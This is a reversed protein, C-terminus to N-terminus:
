LEKFILVSSVKFTEGVHAKLRVVVSYILVDIAQEIRKLDKEVCKMKFDGRELIRFKVGRLIGGVKSNFNKLFWLIL